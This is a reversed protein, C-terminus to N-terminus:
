LKYTAANIIQTNKQYLSSADAEGDLEDIGGLGKDSIYGVDESVLEVVGRQDPHCSIAGCDIFQLKEEIESPTIDKDLRVMGCDLITLGGPLGVLTQNNIKIIGKDMIINDKIKKIDNYEAEINLLRDALNGAILISGNVKIGVLKNLANESESTIILDGDVYLKNGSKNVMLDDLMNKQVYQYGAPIAIIDTEDEFLKIAEELLAEAIVARKTIFSVGKTILSPIDLAEDSIVVKNKVYYKAAKAKLVFVRDISIKNKLHIADSPYTDTAGNVKLPPLKNQLDSPYSVTGNVLISIFTELAKESGKKITLSGNVILVTPKAMITGESIEYTGNQILVETDETIEMVDAVNIAVNFHSLLEKSKSTVLLSAANIAISEYSNLIDPSAFRTDCIASNIILQKKEM